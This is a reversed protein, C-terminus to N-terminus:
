RSSVEQMPDGPSSSNRQSLGTRGPSANRRCEVTSSCVGDPLSGVRPVTLNRQSTNFWFSSTTHEM